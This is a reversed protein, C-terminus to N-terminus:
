QAQSLVIHEATASFEFRGPLQTRSYYSVLELPSNDLYGHRELRELYLNTAVGGSSRQAMLRQGNQEFSLFNRSYTAGTFTLIRVRGTHFLDRHLEVEVPGNFFLRAEGPLTPELYVYSGLPGRVDEIMRQLDAISGELVLSPAANMLIANLLPIDVVSSFSGNDEGVIPLAGITDDGWLSPAFNVVPGTSVLASAHGGLEEPM